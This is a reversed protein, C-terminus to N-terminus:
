PVHKRYTDKNEDSHLLVMLCLLFLYLYSKLITYHVMNVTYKSDASGLSLLM